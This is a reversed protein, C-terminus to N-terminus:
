HRNLLFYGHLSVSEPKYKYVRARRLSCLHQAAANILMLVFLFLVVASLCLPGRRVSLYFIHGFYIKNCAHDAWCM